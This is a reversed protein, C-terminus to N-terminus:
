KLKIYLEFICVFLSVIIFCVFIEYFFTGHERVGLINGILELTSISFICLSTALMEKRFKILLIGSIWFAFVREYLFYAEWQDIENTLKVQTLNMLVLLPITLLLLINEIRVM